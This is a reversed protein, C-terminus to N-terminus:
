RRRWGLEACPEFGPDALVVTWCAATEGDDDLARAPALWEVQDGDVRARTEPLSSAAQWEEVIRDREAKADDLSGFPLTQSSGGRTQVEVRDPHITSTVDSHYKEHLRVAVLFSYLVADGNALVIIKPNTTTM